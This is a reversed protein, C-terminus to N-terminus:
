SKKTEGPACDFFIMHGDPDRLKASAGGQPSVFLPSAFEYGRAELDRAIAAVDGGRFSLCLPDGEMHPAEYLGIRAEGQVMVAWGEDDDGAVRHLGLGEYFERSDRVKTVRLCVDLWGLDM